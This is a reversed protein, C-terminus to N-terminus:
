PFRLNIPDAKAEFLMLEQRSPIKNHPIGGLNTIVKHTNAEKLQAMIRRKAVELMLTEIRPLASEFTEGTPEKIELLKIVHISLTKIEGAVRGKQELVGSTEGVKLKKLQNEVIPRLSPSDITYWSPESGWIGETISNLHDDAFIEQPNEGKKLRDRVEEALKYLYKQDNKSIGDEVIIAFQALYYKQREYYLDPRKDYRSKLYDITYNLDIFRKLMKEIMLAEYVSREYDARTMKTAALVKDITKQELRVATEAQNLRKRFEGETVILGQRRAEDALTMQDVWEKTALNEERRIAKQLEIKQEDLLLHDDLDMQKPDIKKNPDFSTIVGGHTQQVKRKIDEYRYSIRAEIDARTLVHANVIAVLVEEPRPTAAPIGQITNPKKEEERPRVKAKIQPKEEDMILYAPDDQAWLTPSPICSLFTIVLIFIVLRHM